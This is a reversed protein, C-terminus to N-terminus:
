IKIYDDLEKGASLTLLGLLARAATENRVQARDGTFHHCKVLAYDWSRKKFAICVTGVPKQESGGSPGAIGTVSVGISAQSNNLAGTVMQAAVEISVAGYRELTPLKVQLMDHKAENSYTIFARDFYASSGSVASLSASIFDGTCAEATTFVNHHKEYDSVFRTAIEELNHM